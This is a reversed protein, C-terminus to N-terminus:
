KRFGEPSEAALYTFAVWVAVNQNLNIRNIKDLTDESTHHFEFYRAADQQLNALPVESLGELDSGGDTAVETSIFTGLGGVVSALAHGFASDAAGKPLQIAFIHDAGLDCESAIAIRAQEESGHQAAYAKNSQGVEEAGFLVVRVTRQPRQPLEAILKAAAITIGVGAGDDLAGTALDWSDLHGGIVVVEDPLSRGRLEAVVTEGVQMPISQPTLVLRMRVTTGREAIRELLEADVASLAAAPIQPISTEGASPAEYILAGTHPTRRNDTGLSRLLYAVAGRRAAESPGFARIPYYAAYGGVPMPQTVAVIKGHLSAPAASLLDQYTRFVVVDAEIGDKPTPVSNGLATVVLAQSYPAIVQAREEGRHWATLKFLEKRVNEFGFQELKRVAWDAARREAESGAPRPGMETTLGEVVEFAVHEGRMAKDRLASAIASSDANSAAASATMLLFVIAIPGAASLAFSPHTKMAMVQFGSCVKDSGVFFAATRIGEKWAVEECLRIACVSPQM